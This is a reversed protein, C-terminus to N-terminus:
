KCFVQHADGMGIIQADVAQLKLRNRLEQLKTDMDTRIKDTFLRRHLSIISISRILRCVLM